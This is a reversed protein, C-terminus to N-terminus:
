RETGTILRHVQAVDPINELTFQGEGWMNWQYNRRHYYDNQGFRITGSGDTFTTIHATPLTKRDLMDVKRGRKRIIKVTTVVYATRKRIYATWFFRGVTIYLGICVFPIGFLSFLLPAGNAIVSYEWTLVFGCWLISFPIMLIDSSTFLHGAGPKGRWLIAEGSTILSHAFSYDEHLEM